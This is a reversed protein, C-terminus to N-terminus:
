VHFGYFTVAQGYSFALAVVRTGGSATHLAVPNM